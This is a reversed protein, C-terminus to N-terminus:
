VPSKAYVYGRLFERFNKVKGKYVLMVRRTDKM